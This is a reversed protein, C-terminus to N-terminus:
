AVDVLTATINGDADELGWVAWTDGRGADDPISKLLGAKYLATFAAVGVADGAFRVEGGAKLEM